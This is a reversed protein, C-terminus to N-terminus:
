PKPRDPEPATAMVSKGYGEAAEDIDQNGVFPTERLNM